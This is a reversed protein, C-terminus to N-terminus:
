STPCLCWADAAAATRNSCTRLGQKIMRLCSPVRRAHIMFRVDVREQVQLAGGLISFPVIGFNTRELAVRGNVILQGATQEIKVPIHLARTIGNLTLSANLWAGTTYADVSGVSIVAYPHQEAHFQGLM